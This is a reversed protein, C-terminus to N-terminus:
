EVRVCVSSGEGRQMHMKPVHADWNKYEGSTSGSHHIVGFLRYQLSTQQQIHSQEAFESMDLDQPFDVVADSKHARTSM